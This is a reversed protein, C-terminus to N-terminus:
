IGSGSASHLLPLFTGSFIPPLVTGVSACVGAGIALGLGVGLYRIMLGWTLGGVGWMAGFIFCWALTTAQAQGLVRFVYPSLCLALGWPIVILASVAYIMWFSEWAWKKVRQLPLYFSAGALGGLAYLGIGLLVENGM